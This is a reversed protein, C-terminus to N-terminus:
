EDSYHVNHMFNMYDTVPSVSRWVEADRDRILTYGRYSIRNILDPDVSLVRNKVEEVDEEAKFKKIEFVVFLLVVAVVFAFVGTKVFEKNMMKKM